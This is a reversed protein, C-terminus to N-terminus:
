ENFKGDTESDFGELDPLIQKIKALIYIINYKLQIFVPL